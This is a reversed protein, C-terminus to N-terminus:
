KLAALDKKARALDMEEAADNVKLTIAKELLEIAKAKNKADLLMLAKAYEIRHIMVDPEISIAKEMLPAVKAGDAGYLFGVGKAVIEANWLGLAVMASPNKPNLSLAKDLNDKVKTGLGQTLAALVGRLQSIRGLARALEFYAYDNKADLKIAQTAYTESKVYLAEQEGTPRTSAYISNAKAAFTLGGSGGTAQAVESAKQFEGKTYLAQADQLGAALAFSTLLLIAASLIRM